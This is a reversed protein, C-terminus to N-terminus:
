EENGRVRVKTVPAGALRTVDEYISVVLQYEGPIIQSPLTLRWADQVIQGARWETTPYRGMAPRGLWYAVERRAADLLQVGIIHDRQIDSLATWYLTLWVTGGATLDKESLDYGLLQIEGNVVLDAPHPARFSFLPPPVAPTEVRLDDAQPPLVFEGIPLGTATEAYGMKVVYEGPPIGVPLDLVTEGEVIAGRTEFDEEFGPKPVVTGDAWIYGDPDVLRVYFRDERRQGENRFYVTATLSQGASVQTASLDFAHLTARGELRTDGAYYQAGPGRYIWGYDLGALQFSYVLPKHEALYAVLMEDHKGRQVQSIYLFTYDALMWYGSQHDMAITQGKFLPGVKSSIATALRIREPSSLDNLYAAARESGEYGTGVPVVKVAERIGGVLPNYYTYYYPHHPLALAAQVALVFSGVLWGPRRRWACVGTAWKWTMVLGLAALIDFAPMMPVAYRDFKLGSLSILTLYSVLSASVAVVSWTIRNSWERARWACTALLLIGLWQWPGSRFLIVVPYFLPGLDKSSVQRGMFFAYSGGGGGEVARLGVYDAMNHAVDLPAIWLAPWLLLVTAAIAAAWVALSILGSKWRLADTSSALAPAFVMVLAGAPLLAVASVKSLLALGMLAGALGALRLRPTRLFLLMGALALLGFSAVMGESRVARSETLLFPDFALLCGSVWAVGPGFITRVMLVAVAVIAANVAAAAQRKAALAEIQTTASEDEGAEVADEGGEPSPPVAHVELSVPLEAWLLTVGPHGSQYTRAFDGSALARAFSDSRKVWSAEDPGVFVGLDLFRPALALLFVIVALGFRSNFVQVLTPSREAPRGSVTSATTM